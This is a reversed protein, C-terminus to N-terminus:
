PKSRKQARLAKQRLASCPRPVCISSLDPRGASLRMWLLAVFAGPHAVRGLPIRSAAKQPEPRGRAIRVADEGCNDMVLLGCPRMVAGCMCPQGKHFDIGVM